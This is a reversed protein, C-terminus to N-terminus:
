LKKIRDRVSDVELIRLGFNENIVVAEGSAIVKDNIVLEILDSALRDLEIVSGQCLELIESINLHTRGIEVGVDIPISLLMEVNEADYEVAPAMETRSPPSSPRESAAADSVDGGAESEDSDDESFQTILADVEEPSLINAM